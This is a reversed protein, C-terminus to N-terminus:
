STPLGTRAALAAAFKVGESVVSGWLFAKLYDGPAGWTGSTVYLTLLGSFVALMGSALTMQRDTMAFRRRLEADSAQTLEARVEADERPLDFTLPAPEPEGAQAPVMAEMAASFRESLSRSRGQDARKVLADISISEAIV